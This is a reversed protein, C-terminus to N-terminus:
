CILDNLSHTKRRHQLPDLFDPIYQVFEFSRAVFDMYIPTQLHRQGRPTGRGKKDMANCKGRQTTRVRLGLRGLLYSFHQFHYPRFRAANNRM